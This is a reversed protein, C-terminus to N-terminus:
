WEEVELGTYRGLNIKIREGDHDDMLFSCTDPVYEANQVAAETVTVSYIHGGDEWSFRAIENDPTGTAPSSDWSSLMPGDDVMVIDAMGLLDMFKAVKNRM